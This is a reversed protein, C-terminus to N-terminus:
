TMWCVHEPDADLCWDPGRGVTTGRLSRLYAGFLMVRDGKSERVKETKGEETLGRAKTELAEKERERGEALSVIPSWLKM